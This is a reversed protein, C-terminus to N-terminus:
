RGTHEFRVPGVTLPIEKGDMLYHGAYSITYAHRGQKFGYAPALDIANSRRAGAKMALYDEDTLPGRKVMIGQYELLQGSEADRIEFLKGFMEEETALARLAKVPRASHNALAIHLVPRGATEKVTFKVDLM